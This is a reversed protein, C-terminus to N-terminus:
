SKPYKSLIEFLRKDEEKTLTGSRKILDRLENFDSRSFTFLVEEDPINDWIDYGRLSSYVVLDNVERKSPGKSYKLYYYLTIALILISISIIIYKLKM